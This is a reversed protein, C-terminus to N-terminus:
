VSLSKSFSNPTSAVALGSAMAAIQAVAVIPRQRFRRALQRLVGEGASETQV